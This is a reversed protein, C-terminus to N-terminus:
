EKQKEQVDIKSFCHQCARWTPINFFDDRWSKKFKVHAKDTHYYREIGESLCCGYLNTGVVRVQFLCKKRIEKANEESLNPDQYPNEFLTGGRIFINSRGKLSSIIEDNWSSYTSIAIARFMDLIEDKIMPLLSGNTVVTINTTPFDKRINELLWPLFPHLFPEGGILHIENIRDREEIHSSLYRYEEKTLYKYPSFKIRHDCLECYKNCLHTIELEIKSLIELELRKSIM